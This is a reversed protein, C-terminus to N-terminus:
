TILRFSFQCWVNYLFFKITSLFHWTKNHSGHATEHKMEHTTTLSMLMGTTHPTKVLKFQLNEDLMIKGYQEKVLKIKWSGVKNRMYWKYVNGGRIELNTLNFLYVLWKGKKGTSLRKFVKLSNHILSLCNIMLFKSLNLKM